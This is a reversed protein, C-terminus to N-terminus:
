AGAGSAAGPTEGAHLTPPAPTGPAAREPPRADYDAIISALLTVPLRGSVAKRGDRRLAWWIGNLDVDVTYWRGWDRRIANVLANEGDAALPRPRDLVDTQTM